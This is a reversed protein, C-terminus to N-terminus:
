KKFPVDPGRFGLSNTRFEYDFERSKHHFNAHPILRLLHREHSHRAVGIAIDAVKMAVCAAAIALVLRAVRSALWRRRSAPAPAPLVPTKSTSSLDASGAPLAPM